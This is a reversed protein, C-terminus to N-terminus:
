DEVIKGDYLFIWGKSRLYECGTTEFSRPAVVIKSPNPNFWAAFLSFGSNAIINHRCLSMLRLDFESTRGSNAEVFTVDKMQGLMERACKLDDSFVYFRPSKVKDRVINMAKLYYDAGILERGWAIYDGRRVHVAVSDCEQMEKALRANDGVLPAQYQLSARLEDEVEDQLKPTVNGIILYDKRPDLSRLYAEYEPTFDRMDIQRGRKYFWGRIRHVANCMKTFLGEPGIHFEALRQAVKREVMDLEIGFVSDLVYGNHCTCMDVAKIERDPFHKKLALLYAYNNIQSALGGIIAVIFM